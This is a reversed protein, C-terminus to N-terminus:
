KRIEYKMLVKEYRNFKEALKLENEYFSLASEISIPSACCECYRETWYRPFSPDNSCKRIVSVHGVAPLLLDPANLVKVRDGIEFKM